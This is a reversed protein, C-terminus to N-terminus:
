IAVLQPSHRLSVSERKFPQRHHPFLARLHIALPQRSGRWSRTPRNQRALIKRWSVSKTRMSFTSQSVCDYGPSDDWKMQLDLDGNDAFVNCTVSFTSPVDLIFAETGGSELNFPGVTDGNTLVTVSVSETTCTIGFDSTAEYAQATAFVYGTGIPLECFENSGSEISNCEAEFPNGWAMYLDLDGNDATTTCSAFSPDSVHLFFHRREGASVTNGVSEQGSTLEIADFPDIRCELLVDSAVVAFLWISITSSADSALTCSETASRPTQSQCSSSSGFSDSTSMFLDVDGTGTTTCEISGLAYLTSADSLDLTYSQLIDQGISADVTVGDSLALSGSARNVTSCYITMDTTTLYASVLVYVRGSHPGVFCIEKSTFSEGTCELSRFSGDWSVYIDVDGDEAHTMCMIESQTPADVTPVDVYFEREAGVPIGYGESYEGLKLEVAEFKESSDFRWYDLNAHIVDIQGQTWEYLCADDSYDMFNHIPDKGAQGPCSDQGNPDCGFNAVSEVPTDLIGDGDYSCDGEGPGFTHPLGLWHRFPLHLFSYHSVVRSFVYLISGSSTSV